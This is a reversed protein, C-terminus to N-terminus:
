WRLGLGLGAGTQAEGAGAGGLGLTLESALRGRLPLPLALEAKWSPGVEGATTTAAGLGLRLDLRPLLSLRALTLMLQVLDPAGNACHNGPVHLRM